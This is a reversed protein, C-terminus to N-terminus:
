TKGSTPILKGLYVGAWYCPYETIELDGLNLAEQVERVGEGDQYLREAFEELNYGGQFNEREDWFKRFKAQYDQIEEDITM